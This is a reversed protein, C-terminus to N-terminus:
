ENGTKGKAASFAAEAQRYEDDIEIILGQLSSPTLDVYKGYEPDLRYNLTDAGTGVGAMMALVDGLHVAYVLARYQEPARGPHHHMELAATLPAPLHWTRALAAGVECHDTGSLRQEVDLFEPVDGALTDHFSYAAAAESTALAAALVAKGLDHLIGGTYATGPDMGRGAKRAIIGAGVASRLCHRWLDGRQAAYGDLERGYLESACLRMAIGVVMRSGLYSVARRVSDIRSDFGYAASNVTRLVAATLATDVEVVRLLDEIPYDDTAVVQLLHTASESLPRVARVARLIHSPVAM